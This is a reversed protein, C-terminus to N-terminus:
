KFIFNKIAPLFTETLLLPTQYQLLSSRRALVPQNTPNCHHYQDLCAFEFVSRQHPKQYIRSGLTQTGCQMSKQWHFADTRCISRAWIVATGSLCLQVERRYGVQTCLLPYEDAEIDGEGLQRVVVSFDTDLKKLADTLPIATLLAIHNNVMPLTHILDQASIWHNLPLVSLDTDSLM